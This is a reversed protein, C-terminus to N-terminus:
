VILGRRKAERVAGPVDPALLHAAALALLTAVGRPPQGVLLGMQEPQYGRGAFQLALLQKPPLSRADPDSPVPGTVAPLIM